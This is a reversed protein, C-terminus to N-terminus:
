FPTKISRIYVDEDRDQELFGKLTYNIYGNKRANALIESLRDAQDTGYVQIYYSFTFIDMIILTLQTLLAKVSVSLLQGFTMQMGFDGQEGKEKILDHIRKIEGLINYELDPKSLILFFFKNIKFFDVESM